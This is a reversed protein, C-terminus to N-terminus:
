GGPSYVTSPTAPVVEAVQALHGVAEMTDAAAVVAMVVSRVAAATPELVWLETRPEVQASDQRTLDVLLARGAQPEPTVTAHRRKDGSRSVETAELAQQVIVPGEV